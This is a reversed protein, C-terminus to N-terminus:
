KIILRRSSTNPNLSSNKWTVLLKENKDILADCNGMFKKISFEYGKIEKLIISQESKKATLKHYIDLIYENAVISDHIAIPYLTLLNNLTTPEPPIRKEIHNTWFNCGIQILNDEFAQNKTYTYVRFEQGGILVAIDVEEVNCIAAYYAVQCLYGQPIQSTEAEGWQDKMFYSTTKCELIKKKGEVWRDINAGLFPFEPHFIPGNQIAVEVQTKEAYAAAVVEELRVGWEMAESINDTITSSTKDLYVDLATKYSSAGCIAAIDTGGLYYKRNQLWEAKQSENM